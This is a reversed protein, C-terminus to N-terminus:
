EGKGIGCRGLAEGLFFDGGEEDEVSEEGVGRVGVGGFEPFVAIVIFDGDEVDGACQLARVAFELSSFAEGQRNAILSRSHM